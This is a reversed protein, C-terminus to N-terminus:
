LRKDMLYHPINAVAPPLPAQLTYGLHSYFPVAEARAHLKIRTWGADKAAKELSAMIRRGLGKGRFAPDTAVFRIRAPEETEQSFVVCGVARIVTSEACEEFLALHTAQEDGPDRESGESLGWPARLWSWRCFYYVKWEAPNEPVRVVWQRHKM